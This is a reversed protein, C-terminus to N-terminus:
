PSLGPELAAVGSRSRSVAVIRIRTGPRVTVLSPAHNDFDTFNRWLAPGGIFVAAILLVVLISLGLAAPFNEKLNAGPLIGPLLLAATTPM